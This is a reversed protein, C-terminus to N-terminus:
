INLVLRPTQARSCCVCIVNNAARKKGMLFSDRHDPIGEIVPTLCTGCTGEGCSRPVHVGIRDLAEIISETPGVTATIGSKALVIDFGRKAEDPSRPAARFREVHLAGEPWSAGLAEVAALLREPGCCYIGVGPRPAGLFRQLDLMGFCDEPRLEVRDGYAALEECFAMSKFSRGGYLFRWPAGRREVERIMPLLPTIGIGGAVFLYSVADAVEFHNRPGRVRLVDGPRLKTHMWESGGRSAVERLVAIRWRSREGPDGCLSYQRELGPQLLLDIHAGPTWAPLEKGDPSAFVISLVGDAERTIAGVVVNLLPEDGGAAPVTLALTTSLHNVSPSMM